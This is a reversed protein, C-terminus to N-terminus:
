DAIVSYKKHVKKHIATTQKSIIEQKGHIMYYVSEEYKKQDFENTEMHFTAIKVDSLENFSSLILMHPVSVIVTQYM